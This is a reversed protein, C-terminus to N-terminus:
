SRMRSSLIFINKLDEAGSANLWMEEFGAQGATLAISSLVKLHLGRQEIPGGFLFVSRVSDQDDTFHIGKKARVLILVMEGDDLIIHPVALFQTIATNSENQREIFRKKVEEGRLGTIESLREELQDLLREFSIKEEVDLVLAHKVLEDFDDQEIEDRHIIIERLEQELLDDTLRKDTIRKLVHLLAYEGTSRRRGYLLYFCFCLFVFALSIEISEKGLDIIFYSFIAISFLQIFPYLPTSFSPRYNSLRSERLIIVSVNTLVYSTLIVTSASKVLMELPLLLSCYILVGTIVISVIPTQLRPHMRSIGEPILSDRSLALPYRSAAMIGANATTFFALISAITIIIYGGRGLLIRAADAIPTYSNIFSESDLVSTTVIVTLTYLITVVIISSIMGLPINRKPNQVEEAINAVKLLGGFSVFIFGTTILISNVGNPMFPSFHDPQLRPMGVIVYIVMIVLLGVVLLVQFAAAEKVGVINLIVFLLTLIAATILPSIGILTLVIESIGFIAFASKLSLAFWGLFGSLTGVLPGLSRNIFFYDGGAKPMATALEIISLVGILALIGALFYSVAVAPGTKSFALSPLIFIGSSIMAGTALSFVGGFRVEKKLSM